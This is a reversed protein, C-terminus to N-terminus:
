SNTSHSSALLGRIRVRRAILILTPLRIFQPGSEDSCSKRRTFKQLKRLAAENHREQLQRELKRVDHKERDRRPM